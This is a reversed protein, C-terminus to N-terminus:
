LPVLGPGLTVLNVVYNIVNFPSVIKQLKGWGHFYVISGYGFLIAPVAIALYVYAIVRFIKRTRKGLAM